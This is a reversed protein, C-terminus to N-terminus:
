TYVTEQIAVDLAKLAEDIMPTKLPRGIEKEALWHAFPGAVEVVATWRGVSNLMFWLRRDAPKLWLFEASSLVGDLRAAELMSAMITLTYAHKQTVKVVEPHDKYKKLLETTGSFDLRHLSSASIKDLLKKSSAADRAIKAAFCAFLAAVHPKLKDCGPWLEGLQLMFLKAAKDKLLIMKQRLERKLTQDDAGKEQIVRILKYKKVFHLPQMAVAWSGEYIGEKVLNLKAVPACVPWDPLQFKLLSNMDYTRRYQLASKKHHLIFALILLFAACPWRLYYGTERAILKIADFSTTQPSLGLMYVRIPNLKSTFYGLIHIEFRKVYLFVMSLYVHGFWWIMFGALFIGALIWIVTMHEGEKEEPM